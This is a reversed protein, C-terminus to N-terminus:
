QALKEFLTVGLRKINTPFEQQRQLKHQFTQISKPIANRSYNDSEYQHFIECIHIKGRMVIHQAPPVMFDITDENESPGRMVSELYNSLLLIPIVLILVLGLGGWSGNFGDLIKGCVLNEMSQHFDLVLSCNISDQASNKITEKIKADMNFDQLFTEKFKVLENFKEKLTPIETFFESISNKLKELTAEFENIQTEFTQLTKPDLLEKFSAFKADLDFDQKLNELYEKAEEIREDSFGLTELKENIKSKFGEFNSALNLQDILDDLKLADLLSESNQCKEIIESFLYFM